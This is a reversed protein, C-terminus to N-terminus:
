HRTVSPPPAENEGAAGQLCLIAAALANVEGEELIAIARNVRYLVNVTDTM